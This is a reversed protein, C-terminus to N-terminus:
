RGNSITTHSTSTRKRSELFADLSEQTYRVSKGLKLFEPGAGQVRWMELTVPALDLYNAAAKTRFLTM